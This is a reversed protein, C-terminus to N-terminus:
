IKSRKATLLREGTTYLFTLRKWNAAPIPSPLSSLPGLQIEYYEDKTRPHDPQDKFPGGRLALEHGLVPARIGGEV